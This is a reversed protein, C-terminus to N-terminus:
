YVKRIVKEITQFSDRYPLAQAFSVLQHHTATGGSLLFRLAEMGSWHVARHPGCADVIATRLRRSPSGSRFDAIAQTVNDGCSILPQRPNETELAKIQAHVVDMCAKGHVAASLASAAAHGNVADEVKSPLEYQYIRIYPFRTDVIGLTRQPALFLNLNNDGLLQSALDYSCVRVDVGGCLLLFIVCPASAPIHDLAGAHEDFLFYRRIWSRQHRLDHAEADYNCEITKALIRRFSPEILWIPRDAKAIAHDTFYMLANPDDVAEASMSELTEELVQVYRAICKRSQGIYAAAADPNVRAADVYLRRLHPLLDSNLNKDVPDSVAVYLPCRQDPLVPSLTSYESFDIYGNTAVYAAINEYLYELVVSIADIYPGSGHIAALLSEDLLRSHEDRFYLVARGKAIAAEISAQVNRWTENREATPPSDNLSLFVLLDFQDGERLQQVSYRTRLIHQLAGLFEPAAHPYTLVAIRRVLDGPLCLTDRNCAYSHSVPRSAPARGRKVISHDERWLHDLLDDTLPLATAGNGFEVPMDVDLSVSLVDELMSVLDTDADSTFHRRYYAKFLNVWQAYSRAKWADPFRERITLRLQGQGIIELKTSRVFVARLSDRACEYAYRDNLSLSGPQELGDLFRTICVAPDLRLRASNCDALEALLLMVVVADLMRTIQDDLPPTRFMSQIAHDVGHSDQPSMEHCGVCFAVYRMEERDLGAVPFRPGRQASLAAPERNSICYKIHRHSLTAHHDKIHLRAHPQLRDPPVNNFASPVGTRFCWIGCDHTLASALAVFAGTPSLVIDSTPLVDRAACLITAVNNAVRIAHDWGYDLEGTLIEAPNPEANRTWERLAVYMESLTQDRQVISEVSELNPSVGSESPEAMGRSPNAKASAEEDSEVDPEGADHATRVRPLLIPPVPCKELAADLDIGTGRQQTFTNALKALYDSQAPYRRAWATVVAIADDRCIGELVKLSRSYFVGMDDTFRPNPWDVHVSVANKACSVIAETNWPNMSLWQILQERPLMVDRHTM